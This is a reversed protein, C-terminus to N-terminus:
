CVSENTVFQLRRMVASKSIGKGFEAVFFTQMRFYAKKLSAVSPLM